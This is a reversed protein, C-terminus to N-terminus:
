DPSTVARHSSLGVPCPELAVTGVVSSYIALWEVSTPM